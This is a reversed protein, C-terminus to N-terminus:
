SVQRPPASTLTELHAKVKPWECDILSYIHYDGTRGNPYLCDNRLAGEFQAGLRLVATQSIKNEAGVKFYVRVCGMTEFAERLLLYKMETNLHSRRFAPGVQTGGIELQRRNEIVNLFHTIGALKGSVLDRVVFTVNRADRRFNIIRAVDERSRINWRTAFWGDPECLLAECLGDIHEPSPPELRVRRSELVRSELSWIM